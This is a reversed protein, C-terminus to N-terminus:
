IKGTIILGAREIGEPDKIFTRYEMELKINQKIGVLTLEGWL